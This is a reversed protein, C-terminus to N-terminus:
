SELTRLAPGPERRPFRWQAARPQVAYALAWGNAAVLGGHLATAAVGTRVLDMAVFADNWFLLNAGGLLLHVCLGLAHGEARPRDPGSAARALLGAVIIALGHAEAFGITAWSRGGFAATQPGVSFFHALLELVLAAGGAIGLFAADLRLTLTSARALRGASAPPPNQMQRTM